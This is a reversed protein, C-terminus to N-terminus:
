KDNVFQLHVWVVGFQFKVGERAIQLAFMGYAERIRVSDDKAENEGIRFDVEQIDSGM